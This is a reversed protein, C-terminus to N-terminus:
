NKQLGSLVLDLGDFFALLFGPGGGRADDHSRAEDGDVRECDRDASRIPATRLALLGDM